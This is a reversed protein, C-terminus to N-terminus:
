KILRITLPYRYYKGENANVGAIIVFILSFIWLGILFPIGILVFAFIGAIVLYILMSIQFNLSEKGHYDVFDSEEKKIMWIILPALFNGLPIFHGIFIGLHCLMGWTREERSPLDM